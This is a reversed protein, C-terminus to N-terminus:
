AAARNEEKHAPLNLLKADLGCEGLYTELGLMAKYAGPNVSTIKIRPQMIQRM